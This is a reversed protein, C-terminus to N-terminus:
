IHKDTRERLVLIFCCLTQGGAHRFFHGLILRIQRTSLPVRMWVRSILCNLSKLGPWSSITIFDTWIESWMIQRNIWKEAAAIVFLGLGWSQCRLRFQSLAPFNWATLLCMKARKISMLFTPGSLCVYSYRSLTCIKIAPIQLMYNGWQAWSLIESAPEHETALQNLMLGEFRSSYYIYRLIVSFTSMVDNMKCVNRNVRFCLSSDLEFYQHFVQWIFVSLNRWIICYM